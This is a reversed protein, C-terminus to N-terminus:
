ERSKFGLISIRDFEEQLEIGNQNAWVIIESDGMTFEEDDAMGNRIEIMDCDSQLSLYFDSHRLFPELKLLARVIGDFDSYNKRIAEARKASNPNNTYGCLRLLEEEM